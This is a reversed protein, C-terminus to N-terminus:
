EAVLNVDPFVSHMPDCTLTQNVTWSLHYNTNSLIYRFIFTFLGPCCFKCFHFVQCWAFCAFSCESSSWAGPQVSHVESLEVYKISHVKIKCPFIFRDMYNSFSTNRNETFHWLCEELPLQLNPPLMPDEASPWQLELVTHLLCDELFLQLNSLVSIQGTHFGLMTHQWWEELFLQLNSLVSIQGTHFGLM